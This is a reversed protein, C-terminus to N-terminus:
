PGHCMFCDLNMLSYISSLEVNAQLHHTDSTSHAIIVPRFLPLPSLHPSQDLTRDTRDTPSMICLSPSVCRRDEPNSEFLIFFSAYCPFCLPMSPPSGFLKSSRVSPILLDSVDLHVLLFSPTLSLSVVLLCQVM